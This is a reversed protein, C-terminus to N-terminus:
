SLWKEGCLRWSAFFLKISKLEKRSQTKATFFSNRVKSVAQKEGNWWRVM